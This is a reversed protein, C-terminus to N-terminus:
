IRQTRAQQLPAGEYESPEVLKSLLTHLDKRAYKLIGIRGDAPRAVQERTSCSISRWNVGTTIMSVSCSLMSRTKTLFLWASIASASRCQRHRWKTRAFWINADIRKQRQYGCVDFLPCKITKKGRGQKCLHRDVNVMNNELEKAEESRQCMKEQGNGIEPDWQYRGLWLAASANPHEKLLDKIQEKGLQHRPVLIVVTKKPNEQVYAVAAARMLTSKRSGTPAAILEVLPTVESGMRRSVGMHRSRITSMLILRNVRM